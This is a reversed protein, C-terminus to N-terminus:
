SAIAFVVGALSVSSTAISMRNILQNGLSWRAGLCRPEESSLTTTSTFSKLLVRSLVPNYQVLADFKLCGVLHHAQDADPAYGIEAIGLEPLPNHEKEPDRPEPLLRGVNPHNGVVCRDLSLAVRWDEVARERSM